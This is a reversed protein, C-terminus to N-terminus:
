RLEEYAAQMFPRLQELSYDKFRDPLSLSAAADDVTKKADHATRAAAVLTRVFDAYEELDALRGWGSFMARQGFRPLERIRVVNQFRVKYTKLTELAKDLTAPFQIASGGNLRDILPVAKGPYLEGLDVTNFQPWVVVADGDTYGPGLYFLDMRNSGDDDGITKVPFSLKDTFTKNPLAKPSVGLAAMRKRTNEHAIIEGVKPFELNSAGQHPNTIILSTVEQDTVQELRKMIAAGWGPTAKTDVLIIHDETITAICHHEDGMVLYLNTYAEPGHGELASGFFALRPTKPEQGARVVDVLPTRVLGLILCAPFLVAFARRM